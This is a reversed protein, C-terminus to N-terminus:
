LSSNIQKIEEKTLETFEIIEEISKQKELMKRAISLAEKHEGEKFAQVFNRRYREVLEKIEEADVIDRKKCINQIDEEIEKQYKEIIEQDTM